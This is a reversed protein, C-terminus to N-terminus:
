LLALQRLDDVPERFSCSGFALALKERSAALQAVSLRENRWRVADDAFRFASPDREELLHALTPETAGVRAFAAALFLNLFGFMPASPADASYTLPHEGRVPHHLGATTKFPVDHRACRAIFRALQPAAPFADRTVGGTRAKARAGVRKVERLLPDPDPDLPLEVFLTLEGLARAAAGIADPTSARVEVADVVLGGLHAANFAGIRTADDEVGEGALASIRWPQPAAGAYRSAEAALEDLRAVPVVFRGLAWSEPSDRYAAYNAVAEHMPLGAPPFLGAYDVLGELLVRLTHVPRAASM